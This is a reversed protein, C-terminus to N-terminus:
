TLRAIMKEIADFTEENGNQTYKDLAKKYAGLNAIFDKIRDPRFDQLHKGYGLKELYHANVFQEFQNKVPISCIPKHLYLAESILTFGGNTIVAKAGSLDRIFEEESFEKIIVNGEVSSEKFGYVYFTEDPIKQLIETLQKNTSSTQYVLIHNGEHAEASLIEDRLVPPVFSTDRKIFPLHFFTTIM